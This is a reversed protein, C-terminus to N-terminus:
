VAILNILVILAILMFGLVGIIVLCGNVYSNDHPKGYPEEASTCGGVINSLSSDEYRIWIKREDSYIRTHPKILGWKILQAVEEITHVQPKGEISLRYTRGDPKSKESLPLETNASTVTPNIFNVKEKCSERASISTLESSSVRLGCDRKEMPNISSSDEKSFPGPLPDEGFRNPGRTGELGGLEVLWWIIGIVPIMPMLPGWWGSKNRDHLRKASIANFPWSGAGLCSVWFILTSDNIGYPSAMSSSYLIISLLLLPVQVPLIYLWFQKRSIRGQFSFLIQIPTLTSLATHISSSRYTPGTPKPTEVTHKSPSIHIPSISQDAETWAVEQDTPAQVSLNGFPDPDGCEPCTSSSMPIMSKCISCPASGTSGCKPCKAARKSYSHKCHSCEILLSSTGTSKTSKHLDKTLRLSDNLRFLRNYDEYNIWVKQENNFIRTDPKISRDKARQELQQVTLCQDKGDLFLKYTVQSKDNM